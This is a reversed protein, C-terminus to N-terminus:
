LVSRYVRAYRDAMMGVDFRLEAERRCDHPSLEDTKRIAQALTEVDDCVYGTRGHTVVEPVSGRRFGVVPTGCAMAEVMVIGFPEEWCVPFVLCRASQLLEAKMARDAEGLWEVDPGLLPTIVREFYAKEEPERCKAAIKLPIGARRAAEIAQPIGKEVCARGLFLAYDDKRERFPFREVRVANHVTGIWNLDPSLRRQADSVAVLQISDGLGRYYRGMEGNVPGHATVVTPMTRGRAMLPGALSHDHVLDPDIKEIIDTLEAAHTVEPLVQGLRSENPQDYTPVFDAPTGNRGVGVLTIDLGQLCLQEILDSCMAEIGGYATPPLEFWPPAVMAIRLPSM